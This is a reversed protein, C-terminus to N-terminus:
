NRITHRLSAGLETGVMTASSPMELGLASIIQNFVEYVEPPVVGPGLSDGRAMVGNYMLWQRFSLDPNSALGPSIVLEQLLYHRILHHVKEHAGEHKRIDTLKDSFRKMAAAPVEYPQTTTHLRLSVSLPQDYEWDFSVPLTLSATGTNKNVISDLLVTYDLDGSVNRPALVVLEHVDAKSLFVGTEKLATELMEMNAFGNGPVDLRKLSATLETHVPALKGKVEEVSSSLRPFMGTKSTLHREVGKADPQYVAPLPKYNYVDQPPPLFNSSHETGFQFRVDGKQTTGPRLSQRLSEVASTM